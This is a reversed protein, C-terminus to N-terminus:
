PVEYPLSPNPAYGNGFLNTHPPLVPQLQSSFSGLDTEGEVLHIKHTYRERQSEPAGEVWLHVEYDGPPLGSIHFHAASDAIAYFPTTLALVVSSMEPHINCFIYSPGPRTFVVKKTSGAEYLGLDFRKGDFLSFVNHFFPDANPFAVTTGVPIVLLHPHFMRDKQLMATGPRPKWAVYREVKPAFLPVLWLVAPPLAASKGGPRLPTVVVNARVSAGPEATPSALQIAALSSFALAAAFSRGASVM